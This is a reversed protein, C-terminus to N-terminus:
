NVKKIDLVVKQFVGTSSMDITVTSFKSRCVLATEVALMWCGEVTLHVCVDTSFHHLRYACIPADVKIRIEM